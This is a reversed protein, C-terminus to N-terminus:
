FNEMWPKKTINNNETLIEKMTKHIHTTISEDFISNCDDLIEKLINDITWIGSIIIRTYRPIEM